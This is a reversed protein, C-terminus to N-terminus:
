TENDGLLLVNFGDVKGNEWHELSSWVIDRDSGKSDLQLFDGSWFELLIRLLDNGVSLGECFAHHLITLRQDATSRDVM